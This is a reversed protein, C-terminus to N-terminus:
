SIETLMIEELHMWKGEFWVTENKRADSYLEM